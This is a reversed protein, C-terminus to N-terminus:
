WLFLSNHGASSQTGGGPSRPSGPSQSPPLEESWCWGERGLPGAGRTQDPMPLIAMHTRPDAWWCQAQGWSSQGGKCFARQQGQQLHQQLSWPTQVEVKCDLLAEQPKPAPNDRSPTCPCNEHANLLPISHIPYVTVPCPCSGCGTHHYAVVPKKRLYQSLKQSGGGGQDRKEGTCVLQASKWVSFVMLTAGALGLPESSLTSTVKSGQWSPSALAM